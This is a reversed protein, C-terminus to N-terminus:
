NLLAWMRTNPDEVEDGDETRLPLTRSLQLGAAELRKELDDRAVLAGFPIVRRPQSPRDVVAYAALSGETIVTVTALHAPSVISPTM